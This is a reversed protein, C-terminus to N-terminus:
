NGITILFHGVESMKEGSANFYNTLLHKGWFFDIVLTLKALAHFQAWVILNM